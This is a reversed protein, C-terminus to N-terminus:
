RRRVNQKWNGHKDKKRKRENENQKGNQKGILDVCHASTGVNGHETQLMGLYTSRGRSHEAVNEADSLLQISKHNIVAFMILALDASM